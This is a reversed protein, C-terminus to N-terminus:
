LSLNSVQLKFQGAATKTIIVTYPLIGDTSPIVVQDGIAAPLSYTGTSAIGTGTKTVKIRTQNIPYTHLDNASFTETSAGIGVATSLRINIDDNSCGAFGPLCATRTITNVSGPVTGDGNNSYANIGLLFMSFFALVATRKWTKM